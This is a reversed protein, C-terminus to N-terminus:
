RQGGKAQTLHQGMKQQIVIESNFHGARCEHVLWPMKKRIALMVKEVIMAAYRDGNLTVDKEYVDDKEHYISRKLAIKPESVRWVFASRGM